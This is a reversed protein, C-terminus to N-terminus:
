VVAADPVVPAPATTPLPNGEQDRLEIWTDTGLAGSQRAADFCNPKRDRRDIVVAIGFSVGSHDTAIRQGFTAVEASIGALTRAEIRHSKGFSQMPLSNISTGLRAQNRWAPYAHLSFRAM